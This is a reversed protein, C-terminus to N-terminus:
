RKYSTGVQTKYMKNSLHANNQLLVNVGCNPDYNNNKNNFKSMTAIFFDMELKIMSKNLWETELEQEM